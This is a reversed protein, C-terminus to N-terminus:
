FIIQLQSRIVVQGDSGVADARYGTVPVGVAISDFAVGVDTSWKANHGAFYKNVGVTLISVDQATPMDLDAWEYRGFGEWNEAFYYGGQVVIGIPSSDMVVVDDGDADAYM